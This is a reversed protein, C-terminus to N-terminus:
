AAEERFSAIYSQVSRRVEDPDVGYLAYAAAHKDIVRMMCEEVIRADRGGRRFNFLALPPNPLFDMRGGLIYFRILFDWDQARRLTADFDGIERVFETRLVALQSIPTNDGKLVRAIGYGNVGYGQYFNKIRETGKDLDVHHINGCVMLKSTDEGRSELAAIYSFQRQLKDPYWEDDADLMAFWKGRAEKALTSRAAPRGRNESHQVLRIQPHIHALATIAGVTNDTSGDDVILIEYSGAFRQNLVSAISRFIAWEENYVPIAVTLDMVRFM